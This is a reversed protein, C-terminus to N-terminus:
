PANKFGWWLPNLAWWNFWHKLGMCISTFQAKRGFPEQIMGSDWPEFNVPGKMRNMCDRGVKWWKVRGEALSAHTQCPYFHEDAGFFESVSFGLRLHWSMRLTYNLQCIVYTGHDFVHSYYPITMWEMIPSYPVAFMMPISAMWYPYGRLGQGCLSGNWNDTELRNMAMPHTIITWFTLTGLDSAEIHKTRLHDLKPCNRDGNWYRTEIDLIVVTIDKIVQIMQPEWIIVRPCWVRYSVSRAQFVAWRGSSGSGGGSTLLLITSTSHANLQLRGDFILFCRVRQYVYLFSHFIVM